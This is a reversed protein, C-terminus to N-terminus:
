RGGIKLGLSDIFLRTYVELALPVYTRCFVENCFIHGEQLFVYRQCSGSTSFDM